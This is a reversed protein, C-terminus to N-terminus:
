TSTNISFIDYVYAIYNPCYKPPINICLRQHSSTHSVPITYQLSLAIHDSFLAMIYTCMFHAAVLGSTVSHDLTEERAHTAGGTEWRTLHNRQIYYQLQQGSRNMTSKDGIDPHRANFDGVFIIGQHTSPLLVNMNLGGPAGYANCIQLKGDGVLIEFLQFTQTMTQSTVSSDM